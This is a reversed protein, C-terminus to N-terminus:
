RFHASTGRVMAVILKAAGFYTVVFDSSNSSMKCGGVTVSLFADFHIKAAAIAVLSSVDAVPRM